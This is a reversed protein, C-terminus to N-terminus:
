KAKVKHIVTSQPSQLVLAGLSNVMMDYVQTKSWFSFIKTLNSYDEDIM